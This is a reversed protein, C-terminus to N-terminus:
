SANVLQHIRQRSCGSLRAAESQTLKGQKVFEAAQRSVVALPPSRLDLLARIADDFDAIIVHPGIKLDSLGQLSAKHRELRDILEAVDDM